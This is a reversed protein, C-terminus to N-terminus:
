ADGDTSDDPSVSEEPVAPVSPVEPEVVTESEPPVVVPPPSWHVARKKGTCVVFFEVSENRVAVPKVRRVKTFHESLSLVFPHADEGDFVKAVFTGNQRLVGLVTSVAMQVLEVQRLHDTFRDGSTNPAMDSIVLDAAGGLQTLFMEPTTDLISQQLFFGPYREVNQIDIGMLTVHPRQRRVYQSWSGPACGLDLVRRTKRLVQFRREIEELKYVSRAAYGAEKAM